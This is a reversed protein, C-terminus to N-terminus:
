MRKCRNYFSCPRHMPGFPRICNGYIASNCFAQSGMSGYHIHTEHGADSEELIRQATIVNCMCSSNTTNEEMSAAVCGSIVLMMALLLSLALRAKM